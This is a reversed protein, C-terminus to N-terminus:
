DVIKKYRDLDGKLRINEMQLDFFSSEMDKCRAELEKMATIESDKSEQHLRIRDALNENKDLLAVYKEELEKYATNMKDLEVTKENFLRQLEEKQEISAQADEKYQLFSKKAEDWLQVYHKTDKELQENQAKLSNIRDMASFLDDAANVAALVALSSASGAPLAKAIEHMKTNVYDAVKIIHERPSSGAITYEQGYIKVSVKNKEEM